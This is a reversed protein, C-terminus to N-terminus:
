PMMMAPQADFELYANRPASREAACITDYSTEIPKTSIVTSSQAPDSFRESITIACFSRPRAVTSPTGASVNRM